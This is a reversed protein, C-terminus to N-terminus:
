MNECMSSVEANEGAQALTGALEPGKPSLKIKKKCSSLLVKTYYM